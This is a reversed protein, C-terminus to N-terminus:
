TIKEAQWAPEDATSGERVRLRGPGKAWRRAWKHLRPTRHHVCASLFPENRSTVHGVKCVGYPLTHLFLRVVARIPRWTDSKACARVDRTCFRVLVARYPRNRTRSQVRKSTGHACVSVDQGWEGRPRGSACAAARTRARIRVDLRWSRGGRTRLPVRVRSARLTPRSGGEGDASVEAHARRPKLRASTRVRRCGGRVRAGRRPGGSVPACWARRTAREVFLRANRAGDRVGEGRFPARAHWGTTQPVTVRASFFHYKRAAVIGEHCTGAVHSLEETGTVRGPSVTGTVCRRLM